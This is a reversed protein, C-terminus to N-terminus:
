NTMIAETTAEAEVGAAEATQIMSLALKIRDITGGLISRVFSGRILVNKAGVLDLRIAHIREEFVTIKLENHSQPQLM